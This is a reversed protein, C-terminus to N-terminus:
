KPGTWKPALPRKMFFRRQTMDVVIVSVLEWDDEGAQKLISAETENNRLSRTDLIKYEWQM